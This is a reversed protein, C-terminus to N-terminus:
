TIKYVFKERANVRQFITVQPFKNESKNIASQLIKHETKTLANIRFVQIVYINFIFKYLCFVHSGTHMPMGLLTHVGESFILVALHSLIKQLPDLGEKTRWHRYAM